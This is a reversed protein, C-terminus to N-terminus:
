NVLALAINVLSVLEGVTKSLTKQQEADKIGVLTELNLGQIQAGIDNLLGQVKQKQTVGFYQPQEKLYASAALEAQDIKAVSQLAKVYAVTDPFAGARELGIVAQRLASTATAVKGLTAVETDWDQAQKQTVGPPLNSVTKVRAACGFMLALVVQVAISTCWLTDLLPWDRIGYKKV